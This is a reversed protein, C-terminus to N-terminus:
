WGSALIRSKVTGEAIEDLLLPRGSHAMESISEIAQLM